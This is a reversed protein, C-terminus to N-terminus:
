YCTSIKLLFISPKRPLRTLRQHWNHAEAKGQISHGALSKSIMEVEPLSHDNAYQVLALWEKAYGCLGCYVFRNRRGLPCHRLKLTNVRTFIEYLSTNTKGWSAKAKYQMMASTQHHTDSNGYESATENWSRQNPAGGPFLSFGWSNCYKAGNVM